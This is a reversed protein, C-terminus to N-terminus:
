PPSTGADAAVVMADPLRADIPAAAADPPAADVPLAADAVRADAAGGVSADPQPQANGGDSGCGVALAGLFVLTARMTLQVGAVPDRPQSGLRRRAQRRALVDGPDS